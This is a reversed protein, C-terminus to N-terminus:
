RFVFLFSVLFRRSIGWGVIRVITLHLGFGLQQRGKTPAIEREERGGGRSGRGGFRRKGRMIRNIRKEKQQKNM